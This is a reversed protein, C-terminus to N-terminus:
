LKSSVPKLDAVHLSWVRVSISLLRRHGRPRLKLAFVVQLEHPPQRLSPELKDNRRRGVVQSLGILALSGHIRVERMLPLDDALAYSQQMRLAGDAPLDAVVYLVPFDDRKVRKEIRDKTRVAQFETVADDPVEAVAQVACPSERTAVLRDVPPRLSVIVRPVQVRDSDRRLVGALPVELPRVRALQRAIRQPLVWAIHPRKGVDLVVVGLLRDM